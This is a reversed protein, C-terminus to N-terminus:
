QIQKTQSSCNLISLFLVGFSNNMHRSAGPSPNEQPCSLSPTYSSVIAELSITGSSKFRLNLDFNLGPKVLWPQKCQAIRFAKYLKLSFLSWFNLSILNRRCFTWFLIKSIKFTNLFLMFNVLAAQQILEFILLSRCCRVWLINRSYKSMIISNSNVTSLGTFSWKKFDSLSLLEFVVQEEDM